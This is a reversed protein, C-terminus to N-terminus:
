WGCTRVPEASIWAAEVVVAAAAAADVDEAVPPAVLAVTEMNVRAKPAIAAMTMFM